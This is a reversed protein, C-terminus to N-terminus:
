VVEQALIESITDYKVLVQPSPKLRTRNLGISGDSDILGSLLGWRFNEGAVQWWQPLHKNKAGHGISQSFFEAWSRSSFIIKESYSPRKNFKHKNGQIRFHINEGISVSNIIRRVEGVIDKNRNTLKVTNIGKLYDTWGEGVYVCILWGIEQDM